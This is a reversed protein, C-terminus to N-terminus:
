SFHFKHSIIYLDFSAQNVFAIPIKFLSICTVQYSRVCYNYCLFECGTRHSCMTTTHKGGVIDCCNPFNKQVEFTKNRGEVREKNKSGTFFM